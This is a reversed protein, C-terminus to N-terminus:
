EVDHFVLEIDEINFSDNNKLQMTEPTHHKSVGHLFYDGNAARKITISDTDKEGLTIQERELPIVHGQKPGSSIELWPTHSQENLRPHISLQRLQTILKVTGRFTLEYKGIQIVDNDILLHKRVLQSNVYVGNTSDSDELFCDEGTNILKAHHNSITREPLVVDCKQNRGIIYTPKVLKVRKTTQNNVNVILQSM